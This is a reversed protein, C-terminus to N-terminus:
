TTLFLLIVVLSPPFALRLLILVNPRMYKLQSVKRWYRRGILMNKRYKALLKQNHM